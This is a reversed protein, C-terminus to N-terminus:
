AGVSESTEIVKTELIVIRPVSADNMKRWTYHVTTEQVLLGKGYDKEISEVALDLTKYVGGFSRKTGIFVVYIPM